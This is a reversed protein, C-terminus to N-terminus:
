WTQTQRASRIFLIDARGIISQSMKLKEKQFRQFPICHFKVPLFIKVDEVLNTNKMSILLCFSVSRDCLHCMTSLHVIHPGEPRKNEGPNGQPYKNLKLVQYIRYNQLKYLYQYWDRQCNPEQDSDFFFIRWRLIQKKFTM